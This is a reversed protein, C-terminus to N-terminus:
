VCVPVARAKALTHIWAALNRTTPLKLANDWVTYAIHHATLATTFDSLPRPYQELATTIADHVAQNAATDDAFNPVIVADYFPRVNEIAIHVNGLVRVTSATKGPLASNDPANDSTTEPSIGLPAAASGIIDVHIEAKCRMLLDATYLGAAHTGLVAIRLPSM